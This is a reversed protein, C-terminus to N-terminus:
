SAGDAMGHPPDFRLTMKVTIAAFVLALLVSAGAFTMTLSLLRSSRQDIQAQAASVKRYEAEIM